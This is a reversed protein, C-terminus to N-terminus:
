DNGFRSGGVADPANEIASLLRNIAADVSTGRHERFWHLMQGLPAALKERRADPASAPNTYIDYLSEYYWLVYDRKPEPANFREFVPEGSQYDAQITRLNYLKDAASVLLTSADATRLHALYRRKREVWPAKKAGAEPAADSCHDVIAAVEPGFDREIAALVPPGGADEVADHLLAAIAEVETGNAELVLSCVGLLHGVYPIDSGKRRQRHHYREAELLARQFAPSLLM